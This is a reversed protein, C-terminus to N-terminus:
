PLAAKPRVRLAILQDQRPWDMGLETAARKEVVGPSTAFAYEAVLRRNAEVLEQQQRELVIVELHLQYYSFSQWAAIFLGLPILMLSTLLVVRKM